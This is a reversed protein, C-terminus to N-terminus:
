KWSFKLSWASHFRKVVDRPLFAQSPTLPVILLSAAWALRWHGSESWIRIGFCNISNAFDFILTINDKNASDSVAIVWVWKRSDRNVAGLVKLPELLRWSNKGDFFLRIIFLVEFETEEFPTLREVSSFEFSFAESSSIM